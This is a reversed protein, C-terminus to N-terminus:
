FHRTEIWELTNFGTDGSVLEERYEKIQKRTEYSALIGEEVSYILRRLRQIEKGQIEMKTELGQIKELVKKLTEEMSNQNSM